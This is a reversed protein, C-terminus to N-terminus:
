RKRRLLMYVVLGILACAATHWDISLTM